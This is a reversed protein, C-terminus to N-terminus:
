PRPMFNRPKFVYPESPLIQINSRRCARPPYSSPVSSLNPKRRARASWRFCGTTATISSSSCRRRRNSFTPSATGQVGTYSERCDEGIDPFLTYEETSDFYHKLNNYFGYCHDMKFGVAKIIANALEELSGIAPLQLEASWAGHDVKFLRTKMLPFEQERRRSHAVRTKHTNSISM